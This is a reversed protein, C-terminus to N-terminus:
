GPPVTVNAGVIAPVMPPLQSIQFEDPVSTAFEPPGGDGPVDPQDADICVDPLVIVEM